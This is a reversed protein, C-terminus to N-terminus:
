NQMKATSIIKCVFRTVYSIICAQINVTKGYRIKYPRSAITM